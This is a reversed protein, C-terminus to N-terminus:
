NIIRFPKLSLSHAYSTNIYIIYEIAIKRTSSQSSLREAHWCSNEWKDNALLMQNERGKSLLKCWDWKEEGGRKRPCPPRKPDKEIGWCMVCKYVDAWKMGRSEAEMGGAGRVYGKGKIGGNKFIWQYHEKSVRREADLYLFLLM